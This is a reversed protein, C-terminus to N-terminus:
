IEPGDDIGSQKPLNDNRGKQKPPALLEGALSGFDCQGRATDLRGRVFRANRDGAERQYHEEVSRFSSQSCADLARETAAKMAADGRLGDSAAEIACDILASGASSGRCSGRATELQEVIDNTFLSGQGGAGLISRVDAIPAERFERKLARPLAECVEDASYAAKAAREALVKWAPKLPLSRHPGDSM